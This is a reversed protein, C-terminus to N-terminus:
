VAYKASLKLLAACLENVARFDGNGWREKAVYLAFSGAIEETQLREAVTLPANQVKQLLARAYDLCITSEEGDTEEETDERVRLATHLRTRVYSNERDPLTYQLRRQVLARAQKRKARWEKWALVGYLCLYLMGDLCTLGCFSLVGQRRTSLLVTVVGMGGLLIASLAVYVGKSRTFLGALFSLILALGVVGSLILLLRSESFLIEFRNM